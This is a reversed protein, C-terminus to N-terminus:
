SQQQHEQGVRLFEIKTMWLQLREVRNSRDFCFAATKPSPVPRVMVMHSAYLLVIGCCCCCRKTNSREVLVIGGLDGGAGHGAGCRRDMQAKPASM